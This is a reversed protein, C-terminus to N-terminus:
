SRTSRLRLATLAPHFSKVDRCPPMDVARCFARLHSLMNRCQSFIVGLDSKHRPKPEPEAIFFTVHHLRDPSECFSAPRFTILPEDVILPPDTGEFKVGPLGDALAARSVKKLALVAKVTNLPLPTVFAVPGTTMADAFEATVTEPAVATASVEAPPFVIETVLLEATNAAAFSVTVADAPALVRNPAAEPTV